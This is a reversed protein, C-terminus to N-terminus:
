TLSLFSIYKQYWVAWWMRQTCELYATPFFAFQHIETAQITHTVHIARNCAISFLCIYQLLKSRMQWTFWWIASYFFSIYKLRIHWTWQKFWLNAPLSFSFFLFGTTSLGHTTYILVNETSSSIVHIETAFIMDAAYIAIHPPLLLVGKEHSLECADHSTCSRWSSFSFDLETACKKHMVHIALNWPLGGDM